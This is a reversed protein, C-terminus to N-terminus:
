VGYRKIKKIRALGAINERLQNSSLTAYLEGPLLRGPRGELTLGVKALQRKKPM